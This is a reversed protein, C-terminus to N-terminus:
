GCWRSSRRSFGRRADAFLLHAEDFFFCLKPQPQDGVEPLQEFLESLLWLLFTSYLRPSQMLRDAALMNIVGLGDDEIHLIDSLELAPEGFFHEGGQARLQLLSRQIAGVSQKRSTAM